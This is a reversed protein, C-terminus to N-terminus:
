IKRLYINSYTATLSVLKGGGNIKGRLGGHKHGEDGTNAGVTMDFDTYMSGYSTSLEVDVKVASPLSLDVDSYASLLQVNGTPVKEFVATIGGYITNVAVPGTTNKLYVRHYQMSVDLEGEFDSVELKGGQHGSSEFKITASHPVSVQIRSNKSGVQEIQIVGDKETVSVGFGTNDQRGSASIKRLGKAKDHSRRDGSHDISLEAADTGVITAKGINIFEITKGNAAISYVDRQASVSLAFLLCCLFPLYKM